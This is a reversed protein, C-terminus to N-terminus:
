PLLMQTEEMIMMWLVGKKMWYILAHNTLFGERLNHHAENRPPFARVDSKRETSHITSKVRLDIERDEADGNM